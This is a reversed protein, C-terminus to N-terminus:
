PIIWENKAGHYEVIGRIEVTKCEALAEASTNEAIPKVVLRRHADISIGYCDKFAIGELSHPKGIGFSLYKAFTDAAKLENIRKKLIKALEKGLYKQALNKSGAVDEIDLLIDELKTNTISLQL